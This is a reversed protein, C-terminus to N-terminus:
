KSMLPLALNSFEALPIFIARLAALTHFRLAHTRSFVAVAAFSGVCNILYIRSVVENLNLPLPPTIKGIQLDVSRMSACCGSGSLVHANLPSMKLRLPMRCQM